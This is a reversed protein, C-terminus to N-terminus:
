EQGVGTRKLGLEEMYAVVSDAIPDLTRAEYIAHHPVGPLRLLRKPERAREFLELTHDFPTLTDEEVGVMFVARPSIGAVADNPRFNLIADVSELTLQFSWNPHQSRLMKNHAASEPDRIMVQEPDIPESVGTVVRAIRDVELRKLFAHWEWYRRLDRLWRRGEAITAAAVVLGVRTDRRAARIAVGGGFSVGFVTVSHPDADDRQQLWTIASVVDEVQENPFLRGRDGGSEGFGRYDFTLALVGRRALASAVNGVSFEKVGGFGHAVVALPWGGRPPGGAPVFLDGALRVGRSFLAVSTKEASLVTVRAGGRRAQKERNSAYSTHVICVDHSRRDRGARIWYEM